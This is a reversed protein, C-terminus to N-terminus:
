NSDYKSDNFVPIEADRIPSADRPSYIHLSVAPKNSINSIRHAGTVNDIYGARGQNLMRYGVNKLLYNDRDFMFLEEKLIGSLTIFSCGYVPHYHIESKQGPFWKIIFMDFPYNNEGSLRYRYGLPAGPSPIINNIPVKTRVYKESASGFYEWERWDYNTDQYYQDLLPKVIRMARCRNYKTFVANVEQGLNALTRIGYKVLSM